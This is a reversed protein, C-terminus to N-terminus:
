PCRGTDGLDERDFHWSRILPGWKVHMDASLSISCALRWFLWGVLAAEGVYGCCAVLVWWWAPAWFSALAGLVLFILPLWFPPRYHITTRGDPSTRFRTM